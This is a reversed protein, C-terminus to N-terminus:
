VILVAKLYRVRTRGLYKAQPIIHDIELVGLVYKQLSLCYGCRNGAETRIQKKLAESIM